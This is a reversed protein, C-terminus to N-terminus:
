ATVWQELSPCASSGRRERPSPLVIRKVVAFLDFISRALREIRTVM